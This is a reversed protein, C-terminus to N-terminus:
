NLFFTLKWYFKFYFLYFPDVSFNCRWILIWQCSIQCTFNCFTCCWGQGTYDNYLYTIIHTADVRARQTIGKVWLYGKTKILAPLMWKGSPKRHYKTHRGTTIQRCGTSRAHCSPKVTLCGSWCSCFLTWILTEDSLFLLVFPFFFTTTEDQMVGGHQWHLCRSKEAAEM